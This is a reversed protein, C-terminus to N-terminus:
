LLIGHRVGYQCAREGGARYFWRRTQEGRRSHSDRSTSGGSSWHNLSIQYEHIHVHVCRWPQVHINQLLQPYCSRYNLGLFRLRAHNIYMYMYILICMLKFVRLISTNCNRYESSWLIRKCTHVVTYVCTGVINRKYGSTGERLHMPLRCSSVADM